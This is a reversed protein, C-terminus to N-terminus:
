DPGEGPNLFTAGRCALTVSISIEQVVSDRVTTGEFPVLGSSKLNLFILTIIESSVAALFSIVELDFEGPSTRCLLILCNCSESTSTWDISSFRCGLSGDAVRPLVNIFLKM